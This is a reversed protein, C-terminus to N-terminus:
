SEIGELAVRLMYFGKKSKADVFHQMVVVKNKTKPREAGSASRSGRVVKKVLQGQM